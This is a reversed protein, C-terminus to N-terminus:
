KEKYKEFFILFFIKDEYNRDAGQLKNRGSAVATYIVSIAELSIAKVIKPCLRFNCSM